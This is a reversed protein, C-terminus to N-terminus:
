LSYLTVDEMMEQITSVNYLNEMRVEPNWAKEVPSTGRYGPKLPNALFTSANKIKEVENWYIVKPVIRGKKDKVVTNGIRKMLAKRRIMDALTGACHIFFATMTFVILMMVWFELRPAKDENKNAHTQPKVHSINFLCDYSEIASNM